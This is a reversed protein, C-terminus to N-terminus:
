PPVLGAAVGFLGGVRLNFGCCRLIERLIQDVPLIERLESIQHDRGVLIERNAVARIAGIVCALPTLLEHDGRRVHDRASRVRALEVERDDRSSLKLDRKHAVSQSVRVTHPHDGFGGSAAMLVGALVGFGEILIILDFVNKSM